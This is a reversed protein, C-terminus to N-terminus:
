FIDRTSDLLPLHLSVFDSQALVQEMSLLEINNKKVFDLDAFPDYAIAKM